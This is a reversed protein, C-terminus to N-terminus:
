NTAQAASSSSQTASESQSGEGEQGSGNQEAEQRALVEEASPYQLVDAIFQVYIKAAEATLHTGDGDFYDGHM